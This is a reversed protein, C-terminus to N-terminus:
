RWNKINRGRGLELEKYLKRGVGILGIQNDKRKWSRPYPFSPINCASSYLNVNSLSSLYFTKM